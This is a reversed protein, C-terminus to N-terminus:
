DGWIHILRLHIEFRCFVVMKLIDVGFALCIREALVHSNRLSYRITVRSISKIKESSFSTLKIVLIYIQPAMSKRCM